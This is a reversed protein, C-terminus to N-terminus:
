LKQETDYGYILGDITKMILSDGHSKIKIGRGKAVGCWFDISPKQYGYESNLKFNIGYLDIVEYGRYIALAIAYEITGGFYDTDFQEMIESLPYNNLGIYPIHSTKCMLMVMKNELAEKKGWRLDEYVNMDIVLDVPRRILLQTIGWTECNYPADVWGRGKAIIAVQKM